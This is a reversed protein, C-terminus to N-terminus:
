NWMSEWHRFLTLQEDLFRPSIWFDTSKLREFARELDVLRRQAAAILIGITGVVIIGWSTAAHRGAAEDIVLRDAGLELALSIASSEGPLLGKIAVTAIPTRVELWDPLTAAFSRIEDPRRSDLLERHVEPPIVIRTFLGPLVDVHAINILAILPSSDAVVIM